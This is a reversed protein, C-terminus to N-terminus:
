LAGGAVTFKGYKAASEINAGTKALPYLEIQDFKDADIKGTGSPINKTENAAAAEAKAATAGAATKDISIAGGAGVGGPVIEEAGQIGANNLCLVVNGTCAQIMAKAAAAIEPTVAALTGAGFGAPIAVMLAENVALGRQCAAGTPNDASSM